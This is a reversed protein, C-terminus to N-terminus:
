VLATGILAVTAHAAKTRHRAPGRIAVELGFDFVTQFQHGFTDLALHRVFAGSGGDYVLDDAPQTGGHSIRAAGIKLFEMVFHFEHADGSCPHTFAMDM